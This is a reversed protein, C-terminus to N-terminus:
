LSLEVVLIQFFPMLTSSAYFLYQARGRAVLSIFWLEKTKSKKPREVKEM